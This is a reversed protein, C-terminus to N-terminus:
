FLMLGQSSLLTEPNELQVFVVSRFLSLCYVLLTTYNMSVVLFRYFTELDCLFLVVFFLHLCSYPFM